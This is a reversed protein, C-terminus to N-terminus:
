GQARRRRLAITAGAIVAAVLAIWPALIAIKNIPYAEGGVAAVHPMPPVPPQKMYWYGWGGGYNESSSAGIATQGLTSRAAYNDSSEPGGGGSNVSWDIGYNDSSMALATGGLLFFCLLCILRDRICM